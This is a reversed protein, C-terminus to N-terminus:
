ITYTCGYGKSIIFQVNKTGIWHCGSFASIAFRLAGV